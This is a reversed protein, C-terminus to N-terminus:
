QIQPMFLILQFLHMVPKMTYTQNPATGSVVVSMSLDFHIVLDVATEAPVNFIFNKDTKLNESPIEVPWDETAGGNVFRITASNVVIRVQSYKGADLKVPPVLETTNEEQFQLLDITYSPEVLPM